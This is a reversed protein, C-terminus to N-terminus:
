LVDNDKVTIDGKIYSMFYNSLKNYLNFNYENNRYEYPFLIKNNALLPANYNM